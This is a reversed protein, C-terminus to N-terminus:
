AHWINFWRTAARSSIGMLYAAALPTANADYLQFICSVGHASLTGNERINRPDSPWASDLVSSPIRTIVENVSAIVENFKAIGKNVKKKLRQIEALYTREAAEFAMDSIGVPLIFGRTMGNTVKKHLAAARKAATYDYAPVDSMDDYAGIDATLRYLKHGITNRYDVLKQLEDSEAQSIVGETVLVEWASQMKKGPVLRNRNNYKDTFEISGVVYQKLDEMYFLVLVM